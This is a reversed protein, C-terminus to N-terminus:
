VQATRPLRVWSARHALRASLGPKQILSLTENLSKFTDRAMCKPGIWRACVWIVAPLAKWKKEKIKDHPKDRHLPALRNYITTM